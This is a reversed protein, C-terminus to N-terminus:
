QREKLILESRLTSGFPLRSKECNKYRREKKRERKREKEKEESKNSFGSSDYQSPYRLHM